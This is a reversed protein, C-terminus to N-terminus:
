RSGGFFSPSSGQKAAYFCPEHSWHYDSRGLVLGPKAWIIYQREILGAARMAFSFDERTQSAHWIYFAADSNSHHVMFRFAPLLLENLLKDERLDDGAIQDFTGSSNEYSVGYPPDTFILAAKKGDMLKTMDSAATASGCLVRHEGLLWLDGPKTIPPEAVPPIEDDETEGESADLGFLKCFEDTSFGTLSVGYGADELDKLEARLLEENWAANLSIKNDALTLAQRQKSSLHRLEIVPVSEMSLTKAALIRGHGAIITGDEAALVPNVFGFERISEAIQDIQKDSHTRANRAYPILEEIKREIVEIKVNM